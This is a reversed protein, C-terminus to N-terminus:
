HNYCQANMRVQLSDFSFPVCYSSSQGVIHTSVNTIGRVLKNKHCSLVLWAGGFYFMSFLKSKVKHKRSVTFTINNQLRIHTVDNRSAM